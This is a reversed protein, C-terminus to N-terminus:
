GRDSKRINDSGVCNKDPCSLTVLNSEMPHSSMADINKLNKGCRHCIDVALCRVALEKEELRRLIREKQQRTKTHTLATGTARDM